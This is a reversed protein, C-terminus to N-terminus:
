KAMKAPPRPRATTKLGWTTVRGAGLEFEFGPNLADINVARAALRERVDEPTLGPTKSITMAAVGSVLASAFSTGTATAHGEGPLISLIGAGPACLAVHDGHDSSPLVRDQLDLAAVGIAGDSAAPYTKRGRGENGVAAIVVVGREVAEEVAEDVAFSEEPASLSINIVKAGHDIAHYIGAALAFTTGVGDSDLVRVPMIMAGPAATHIVGAVFTGHGAMEDVAGDQDQDIGDPRDTTDASGGLWDYGAVVRGALYSHPTLGTDLVAVTVGTGTTYEHVPALGLKRAAPQDAYDPPPPVRVFFSQTSGETVGNYLHKECGDVRGDDELDDILDELDDEYGPRAQIVHLNRPLFSAKVTLRAPNIVQSVSYGPKLRLVLQAPVEDGPDHALVPSGGAILSIMCAALNLRSLKMM